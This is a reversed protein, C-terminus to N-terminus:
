STGILFQGSGSPGAICFISTSFPHSRPIWYLTYPYRLCISSVTFSRMPGSRHKEELTGWHEAEDVMCCVRSGTKRYKALPLSYESTAFTQSGASQSERQNRIVTTTSASTTRSAKTSPLSSNSSSESEPAGIHQYFLDVNVDKLDKRKSMAAEVSYFEEKGTPPLVKLGWAGKRMSANKANKKYEKRTVDIIFKWGPPFNAAPPMPQAKQALSVNCCLQKLM